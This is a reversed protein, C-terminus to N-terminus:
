KEPYGWIQRYIVAMIISCALPGIQNFGPVKALGYALLAFLFTFAIGGAWLSINSSTRANTGLFLARKQAKNINIM